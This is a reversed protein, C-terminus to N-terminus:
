KIDIKRTKSHGSGYKRRATEAYKFAKGNKRCGKELITYDVAAARGATLASALRAYGWSQATQNPRSGSSYYAGQGKAVIQKLADISCGTKKALDASPSMNDVDYIKFAKKVHKSIHSKYSPLVRRTYYDANKYLRRSKKIMAIQKKTDKKSLGPPVYRIPLRIM